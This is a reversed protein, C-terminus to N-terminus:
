RNMMRMESLKAAQKNGPYQNGMKAMKEEKEDESPSTFVYRAVFAGILGGLFPATYYVWWGERFFKDEIRNSFIAPGLTRCPNISTGTVGGFAFIMGILWLGVLLGVVDAEFKKIVCYSVLMVLGMTGFMEPVFAQLDKPFDVNAKRPYGLSAETQVEPLGFRMLFGALLSGLIQGGINVLGKMWHLKRIAMLGLAVAPNIQGGSVNGFLIILSGLVGGHTFAVSVGDLAVVAMGGCFVFVTMGFFEALASKLLNIPALEDTKAEEHFEIQQIGQAGAAHDNLNIQGGQQREESFDIKKM